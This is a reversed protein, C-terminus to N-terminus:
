AFDGQLYGEAAAEVRDAEGKHLLALPKEGDLADNPVTLWYWTASDDGDFLQTIRDFGRPPQGHLDGTAAAEVRDIEGKHLLALPKEGDLADNPVTLWYWTASDDGDFLQTIRDFGRPPQGHLDGTAAAEVRDIEGKHLLALPKEGGLADNPVTLWYCMTYADGSLYIIRNFGEPSRQDQYNERNRAAAEVRDIEGKHLLALPEERDLADNPVTLWYWTASDDGDFLQTIRDFGNPLRRHENFQEAEVLQETIKNEVEQENLLEESDETRRDM